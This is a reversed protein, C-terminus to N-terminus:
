KMHSADTCNIKFGQDSNFLFHFGQGNAVFLLGGDSTEKM